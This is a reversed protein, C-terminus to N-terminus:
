DGLELGEVIEYSRNDKGEQHWRDIKFNPQLKKQGGMRAIKLMVYDAYKRLTQRDLRKPRKLHFPNGLIVTIKVKKNAKRNKLVSEKPPYAQHIGQIFTPLIPVWYMDKNVEFYVRLFGTFGQMVLGHSFTGEPGIALIDGEELVKVMRHVIQDGTGMRPVMKLYKLQVREDPKKWDQESVPARVMRWFRAAAAVTVYFDHPSSHNGILIAPQKWRLQLKGEIQLANKTRYKLYFAILFYVKFFFQLLHVKQLNKYLHEFLSPDAM